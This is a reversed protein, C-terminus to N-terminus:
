HMAKRFEEYRVAPAAAFLIQLVMNIYTGILPIVSAFAILIQVGILGYVAGSALKSENASRILAAPISLDHDILYYPALYYRRLMIIGPVIFLLFGGIVMLATVVSLGLLRPLFPLGKRFAEQLGVVRGKASQLYTYTLPGYALLSYVVGALMIVNFLPEIIIKFSDTGQVGETRYGIQFAFVASFFLLPAIMLVLYTWLNDLIAKASPRFLAAAPAFDDQSIVPQKSKKNKAMGM